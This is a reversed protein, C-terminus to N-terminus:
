SRNLYSRAMTAPAPTDKYHHKSGSQPGTQLDDRRTTGRQHQIDYPPQATNTASTTAHIHAITRLTNSGTRSFERVRVIVPYKWAGHAAIANALPLYIAYAKAEVEKNMNFDTSVKGELIEMRRDEERCDAAPLMHERTDSLDFEVIRIFDPKHHQPLKDRPLIAEPIINGHNLKFVDAM